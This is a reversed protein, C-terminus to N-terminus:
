IIEKSEAGLCVSTDNLLLLFFNMYRDLGNFFWKVTMPNLGLVEVDSQKVSWSSWITRVNSECRLCNANWNTYM